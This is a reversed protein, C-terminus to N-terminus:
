CWPPTVKASTEVTNVSCPSTAAVLTEVTNM